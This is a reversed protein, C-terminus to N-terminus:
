NAGHPSPPANRDPATTCAVSTAVQGAALKEKLRNPRINMRGGESTPIRADVREGCERPQRDEQRHERDVEHTITPAGGQIGARSVSCTRPSTRSITTAAFAGSWRSRM